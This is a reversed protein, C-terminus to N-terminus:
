RKEEKDGHGMLWGIAGVLRDQIEPRTARALMEDLQKRIKSIRLEEEARTRLGRIWANAKKVGARNRQVEIEEGAYEVRYMDLDATDGDTGPIPIQKSVPTWVGSRPRKVKPKETAENNETTKKEMQENRRGALGRSWREEYGKMITHPASGIGYLRAAEESTSVTIVSNLKSEKVQLLRQETGEHVEEPASPEQDLWVAMPCM